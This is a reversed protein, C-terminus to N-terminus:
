GEQAYVAEGARIFGDADRDLQQFQDSTGLFERRSIEGDQNSDMATFWASHSAEATAFTSPLAFLETDRQPNGRVLGVVVAVPIEHAALQGDADRDLAKLRDPAGYLERANLIGDGGTDLAAYLSDEHGAVWARVLGGFAEQRRAMFRGLEYDEIRGNRNVDVEDVSANYLMPDETVFFAVRADPLSISVQNSHRGVTAGLSQLHDTITELRVRPQGRGSPESSEGFEALVTLHAPADTLGELEKENIFGDQDADLSDDADPM